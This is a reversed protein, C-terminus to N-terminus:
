FLVSYFHVLAAFLMKIFINLAHHFKLLLLHQFRNRFTSLNFGNKNEDRFFNSRKKTKGMSSDSLHVSYRTRRSFFPTSTCRSRLFFNSPSLSHMTFSWLYHINPPTELRLSTLVVNGTVYIFFNSKKFFVKMSSDSLHVSHRTRKSDFPTFTWLPRPFFILSSISHMTFSWFYYSKSGTELRQCPLIMKKTEDTLFNRRKSVEGMSSDSLHVYSGAGKSYFPTFNCWPRLFFNSPSISHMTFSWFYYVNSGTELRWCTLVVSKTEDRLFNSRKLIDMMSFDSLHVSYRARKSYFPTFNCWPQLFISSNLSHTSFSWLYYFNSRTELLLCTLVVKKSEDTFFNSGKLIDELSSDSLHVFYRARKSYFPTSTCWPRLFFNTCSLSHM